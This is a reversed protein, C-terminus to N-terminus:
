PCPSLGRAKEWHSIQQGLDDMTRDVGAAPQLERHAAADLPVERLLRAVSRILIAQDRFQQVNAQHEALLSSPPPLADLEHIMSDCQLANSELADVWDAREEDTLTEDFRQVFRAKLPDVTSRAATCIKAAWRRKRRAEAYCARVLLRRLWGHRVDAIDPLSLGPGRM